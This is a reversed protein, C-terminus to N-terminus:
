QENQSVVFSFTIDESEFPIFDTKIKVACTKNGSDTNIPGKLLHVGQRCYYDWEIKQGIVTTERPGTSIVRGENFYFDAWLAVGNCSGCSCCFLKNLNFFTLM